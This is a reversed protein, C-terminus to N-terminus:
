ATPRTLAVVIEGTAFTEVERFRLGSETEAELEIPVRKLTEIEGGLRKWAAEKATWFHLMAHAIRCRRMTAAEADTLFLHAAAEKMERLEEVDIGIPERDIAAAAYTGSHAISIYHEGRMRRKAGGEGPPLLIQLDRALQKLAIRSLKWEAKRKPLRFSDVIKLEDATFWEASLDADSIVIARGRWSEPLVVRRM